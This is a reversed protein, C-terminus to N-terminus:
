FRFEPGFTVSLNHNAGRDFYMMDGVEARIGFRGAFFELGGGPYFVGNTDGSIVQGTQTTFARSTSFNLFGGKMVVFARVPGVGTQFKPGFLGNLLRLKSTNFSTGDSTTSFQREFDYAMSGELQVWKNLNFGVRGGAGWFNSDNLHHLRTLDAFVGIDGHEEQAFVAPALLTLALVIALITIAGPIRKM